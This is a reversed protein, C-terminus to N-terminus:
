KEEIPADVDVKFREQMYKENLSEADEEEKFPQGEDDHIVDKVKGIWDRDAGEVKSDTLDRVEEASVELTEVPEPNVMPQVVQDDIAPQVPVQPLPTNPVFEAVPSAEPGVTTVTEPNVINQGPEM